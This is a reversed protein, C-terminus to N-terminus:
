KNYSKNISDFSFNKISLMGNRIYQFHREFIIRFDDLSDIKSNQCIKILNEQINTLNREQTYKELSQISQHNM